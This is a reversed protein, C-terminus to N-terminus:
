LTKAGPLIPTDAGGAGATAKEDMAKALFRVYILTQEMIDIAFFLNFVNESLVRMLEIGRTGNWSLIRDGLDELKYQICQYAADKAQLYIFLAYLGNAQLIALAENAARELNSKDIDESKIIDEAVTMCEQDIKM